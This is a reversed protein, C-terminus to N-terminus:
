HRQGLLINSEVDLSRVWGGDAFVRGITGRAAAAEDWSRQDWNRGQYQVSGSRLQVLGQAADALPLRLASSELRVILLEGPMLSFNVQWIGSEHGAGPEVTVSDFQLIPDAM